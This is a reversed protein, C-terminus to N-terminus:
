ISKLKYDILNEIIEEIFIKPKWNLDKELIKPDGFSKMIEKGRFYQPTIEIFDKYNLDLKKFTINIFEKLSTLKGTCIVQDKVLDKRTMLHIGEMYEEAWGWDREIQINGIKLKTTKTKTCKVAISIIKQTVFNENRLPSEHNFLIGTQCRLNHIERYIKVLNLSAQKGIGYTNCPQQKHNIGAPTSTHGFIESSGAFFINGSYNLKRCVELINLTGNVISEITEVPEIFSKGVSSQGALNYIEDPNIIEILKSLLRFDRIDFNKIEIDKNIGLLAHNNKTSSKNKSVGIVNYKKKLLYKCLLSGDQGLCGLVLATKQDTLSRKQFLKNRTM